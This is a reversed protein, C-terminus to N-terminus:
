SLVDEIIATVQEPTLRSGTVRPSGGITNGGGWHDEGGEAKDLAALLDVIPFDIFHSMRGVTYTYRGDGHDRVSVFARIGDAFMGTRAMSGHEEVLSWGKGGGVVDYRLDLPLEEGRGTIHSLIRHEVDTIVSTFQNAERRGLGGSLRFQRYPEFVWAMERLVVADKPFPYAGATTDLADEMHVLRNLLPNISQTALTHHKLLFWSLCVDEDCDNVYVDARPGDDDRFLDFLGQRLDMLVQGCTARTALRDVGEHHNFNRWPGSPDFAPGEAVYGDLAISYPDTEARFEEWSLPSTNSKVILNISM